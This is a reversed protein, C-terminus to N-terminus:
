IASSGPSSSKPRCAAKKAVPALRSSQERQATSLGAAGREIFAHVIRGGPTLNHALQATARIRQETFVQRKYAFLSHILQVLERKSVRLFRLTMDRCDCRAISYTAVIREVFRLDWEAFCDSKVHLSRGEVLDCRVKQVRLCKHNFPYGVISVFILVIRVM